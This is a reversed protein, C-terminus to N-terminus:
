TNHLINEVTFAYDILEMDEKSINIENLNNLTNLYKFCDEIAKKYGLEFDDM